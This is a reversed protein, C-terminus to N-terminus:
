QVSLWLHLERYAGNIKEAAITQYDDQHNYSGSPTTSLLFTLRLDGKKTIAFTYNQQWEPTWPQETSVPTSPLTVPISDLFWLHHYITENTKTSNNYTTTENILWIEITYNMTRYEHNALGIMVTANEGTTLNRPYDAAKGTPGLLYFETFKEGTKPVTIVYVLAALAVVIALILIITLATDIKNNSKPLSIQVSILFREDAPTQKWRVMAVVGAGVNFFFVSLLIPELRIGWPTYNLILGLLPVLAISLGFSLAVREIGDIGRDTKKAPFLAFVMLYGPIFLLFPAGLLTRATTNISLLSIPLLLTSWALCLLIDLPYKTSSLKM